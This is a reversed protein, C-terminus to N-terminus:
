LALQKKRKTTVIARLFNSGVICGMKIERPLSEEHQLSESIESPRLWAQERVSERWQRCLM